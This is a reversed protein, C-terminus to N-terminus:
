DAQEATLSKGQWRKVFDSKGSDSGVFPKHLSGSFRVPRDSSVHQCAVRLTAHQYASAFGSRASMSKM